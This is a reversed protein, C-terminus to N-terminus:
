GIESALGVSSYENISWVNCGPGQTDSFHLALPLGVGSILHDTFPNSKGLLSLYSYAYLGDM